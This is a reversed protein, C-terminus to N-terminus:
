NIKQLKRYLTALSIGLAKAAAKKGQTSKGYRCIAQLIQEEELDRLSSRKNQEHDTNIVQIEDGLANTRISQPLSEMGLIGTNNDSSVSLMYQVVNELERINGDWRHEMLFNIVIKDVELIQTSFFPQYKNVFYQTLVPIDEKRERLPPLRIPIVNLRYYLDERFDGKEVMEKLNKNTAAIIRIDIDIQKEGGIKDIKREQLARLIKAQLQFPMDGIEDLFLTGTNAMQFKGVKGGKRAGTFAGEIYGFMESELLEAPISACNVPVFPNHCRFSTDHIARAFLEKGTGSEGLLMINCDTKAVKCALRKADQIKESSGLINDFYNDYNDLVQETIKRGINDITKFNLIMGIQESGDYITSFVVGYKMGNIYIEEYTNQLKSKLISFFDSDSIFDSINRERVSGDEAGIIRLAKQNINRIRHDRDLLIYGNSIQDLVKNLVRNQNEIEHYIEQEKQAVDYEKLKLQILDCMSQVFNLLSRKEDKLKIIQSSEYCILGMVGVIKEDYYIPCHVYGTETCEYRQACQECVSGTKAIISIQYTGTELVKKVIGGHKPIPKFVTGAVRKYDCDIVQTDIDLAFTIGQAVKQIFEKIDSLRTLDLVRGSRQYLPLIITIERYESIKNVDIGVKINVYVYLIM